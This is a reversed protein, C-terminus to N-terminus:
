AHNAVEGAGDKDGVPSLHSRGSSVKTEQSAANDLDDVLPRRELVRLHRYEFQDPDGRDEEKRAKEWPNVVVGMEKAENEAEEDRVCDHREHSKSDVFSSSFQYQQPNTKQGANKNKNSENQEEVYCWDMVTLNAFIKIANWDCFVKTCVLIYVKSSIDLTAFHCFFQFLVFYFFCM